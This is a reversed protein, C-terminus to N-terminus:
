GDEPNYRPDTPVKYYSSWDGVQKETLNVAFSIVSYLGFPTVDVEVVFYDDFATANINVSVTAFQGSTVDISTEGNSFTADTDEPFMINFYFRATTQFVYGYQDYIGAYIKTGSPGSRFENDHQWYEYGEEDVHYPTWLLGQAVGETNFSELGATLNLNPTRLSTHYQNVHETSVTNSMTSWLLVWGLLVHQGPVEPMTPPNGEQGQVKHVVGDAGVVIIDYRFNPLWTLVMNIFGPNRPKPGVYINAAVDSEDMLLSPNDMATGESSGFNMVVSADDMVAPSDGDLVESSGDMALTGLNYIVDNIRYQGSMVSVYLGSGAPIVECGKLVTNLLPPTYAITASPIARGYGDIELLNPNGSRRVLRVAQGKKVFGPKKGGEQKYPVMINKDTGQIRIYAVDEVTDVDEVVGDLTEYSRKSVKDLANRLIQSKM